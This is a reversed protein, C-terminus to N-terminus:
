PLTVRLSFLGCCGGLLKPQAECGARRAHSSRRVDQLQVSVNQFSGLAEWADFAVLDQFVDLSFKMGVLNTNVALWVSNCQSCNLM